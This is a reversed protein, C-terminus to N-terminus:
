AQAAACKACKVLGTHGITWGQSRAEIAARKAWADMPDNAVEEFEFFERCDHSECVLMFECFLMEELLDDMLYDGYNIIIRM